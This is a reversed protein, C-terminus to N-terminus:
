YFYYGLCSKNFNLYPLKYNFTTINYFYLYKILGKIVKM